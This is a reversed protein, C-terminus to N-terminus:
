KWYFVKTDFYCWFSKFQINKLWSPTWTGQYNLSKCAFSTFNQMLTDYYIYKWSCPKGDVFDTHDCDRQNMRMRIIKPISNKYTERFLYHYGEMPEYFCGNINCYRNHGEITWNIVKNSQEYYWSDSVNHKRLINNLEFNYSIIPLNNSIREDNIIKTILIAALRKM